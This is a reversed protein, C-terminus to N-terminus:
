PNGEMNETIMMAKLEKRTPKTKYSDLFINECDFSCFGDHRTTSKGCTMCHREIM